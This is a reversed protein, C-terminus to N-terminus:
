ENNNEIENRTKIIMEKNDHLIPKLYSIIKKRNDRNSYDIHKITEKIQKRTKKNLFDRMEDLVDDFDERKSDLLLNLIEDIKKAIWKKNEHVVDSTTKIEPNFNVISTMDEFYNKNTKLIKMLEDKSLDSTGDESFNILVLKEINIIKANNSQNISNIKKGMITTNKNGTVKIKNIDVKCNLFHRKMSDKRSFKKGCKDCKFTIIKKSTKSGTKCDIVRNLHREYNSKKDFVKSCKKCKFIKM